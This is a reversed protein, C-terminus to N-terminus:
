MASWNLKIPGAVPTRFAAFFTIQNTGAAGMLASVELTESGNEDADTTAGLTVMVRMGATVGTAAVTQEHEIRRNPVTITAAGGLIGAQAPAHTHAADAKGTLAATLGTVDSIPHVHVLDAKDALEGGLGTVESIAHEHASPPFESPTGSV